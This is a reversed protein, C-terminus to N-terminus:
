YTGYSPIRLSSNPFLNSYAAITIRDDFASSRKMAAESLYGSPHVRIIM